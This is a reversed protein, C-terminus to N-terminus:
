NLSFVLYSRFFYSSIIKLVKFFFYVSQFSFLGLNEQNSNTYKKWLFMILVRLTLLLSYSPLRGSLQTTKGNKHVQPFDRPVRFFFYLIHLSMKLSKAHSICFQWFFWLSTEIVSCFLMCWVKSLYMNSVLTTILLM